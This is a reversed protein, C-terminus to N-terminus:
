IIEDDNRGEYYDMNDKIKEYEKAVKNIWEKVQKIALEKEDDGNQIGSEYALQIVIKLAEYTEKDMNKLNTILKKKRQNLFNRQRNEKQRCEFCKKKNLSSCTIEKGCVSCNIIKEEYM